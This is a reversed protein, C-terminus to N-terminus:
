NKAAPSYPLDKNYLVKEKPACLTACSNEQCSQAEEKDIRIEEAFTPITLLFIFSLFCLCSITIKTYLPTLNQRKGQLSLIRAELTEFESFPLAYSNKTQLSKKFARLIHKPNGMKRAVAYDAAKEMRLHNWTLLDSAYPFVIELPELFTLAYHLLYHKRTIHHKEHLLVATLEHKNLNDTLDKSVYITPRLLGVCAASLSSSDVVKVDPIKHTAIIKTLKTSHTLEPLKKLSSQNKISRAIFVLTLLSIAIIALVIPFEKTYLAASTIAATCYDKVDQYQGLYKFTYFLTGSLLLTFSVLTFVNNRKM